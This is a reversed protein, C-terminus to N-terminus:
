RERSHGCEGIGPGDLGVGDELCAPLASSDPRTGNDGDAVAM